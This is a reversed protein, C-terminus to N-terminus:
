ASLRKMALMWVQTSRVGMMGDQDVTASSIVFITRAQRAKM